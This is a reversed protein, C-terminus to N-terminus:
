PQQGEVTHELWFQDRVAEADHLEALPEIGENDSRVWELAIQAIRNAERLQKTM